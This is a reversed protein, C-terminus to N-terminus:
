RACFLAIGQLLIGGGATGLIDRYIDSGNELGQSLPGSCENDLVNKINYYFTRLFEFITHNTNYVSCLM